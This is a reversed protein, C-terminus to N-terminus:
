IPMGGGEGCDEDPEGCELCDPSVLAEFVVGNAEGFGEHVMQYSCGANSYDGAADGWSDVASNYCALATDLDSTAEAGLGSIYSALADSYAMQALFHYEAGILQESLGFSAKEEVFSAEHPTLHSKDSGVYVAKASDADAKYSDTFGQETVAEAKQLLANSKAEGVQEPTAAWATQCVLLVLGVTAYSWVSRRM